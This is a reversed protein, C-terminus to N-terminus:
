QQMTYEEESHREPNKKEDTKYQTNMHNKYYLIHTTDQQAEATKPQKQKGLQKNIEEDIETNSYGNNVLLQKVRNLETDMLEHTSSIKVARIIFARLVSQKYTSPCESKANLTQGTNAPKVYVSTIYRNPTAEENVDLFILCNSQHKEYTFKLVSNKGLEAIIALLHAEDRDKKAM